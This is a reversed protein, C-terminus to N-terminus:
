NMRGPLLMSAKCCGTFYVFFYKFNSVFEYCFYWIQLPAGEYAWFLIDYSFALCKFDLSVYCYSKVYDGSNWYLIELWIAITRWWGDCLIWYEHICWPLTPPFELAKECKYGKWLLHLCRLFAPISRWWRHGSSHALIHHLFIELPMLFQIVDM